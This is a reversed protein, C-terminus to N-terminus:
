LFKYQSLDLKSEVNLSLRDIPNERGCHKELNENFKVYSSGSLKMPPLSEWMQEILGKKKEEAQEKALDATTKKIEHIKSEWERFM